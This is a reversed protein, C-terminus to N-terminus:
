LYDDQTMVEKKPALVVAVGNDPDTEDDFLIAYGGEREFVLGTPKFADMFDKTKLSALLAETEKEVSAKGDVFSKYAFRQSDTILDTERYSNACIYIEYKKGCFTLSENKYWGSDFKVEGFIEDTM